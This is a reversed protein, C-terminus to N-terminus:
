SLPMTALPRTVFHNLHASALQTHHPTTHCTGLDRRGAAGLQRAAAHKRAGSSSPAVCSSFPM